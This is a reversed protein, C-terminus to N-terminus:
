SSIASLCSNCPFIIWILHSAPQLSDIQGPKYDAQNESHMPASSEASFPDGMTIGTIPRSNKM